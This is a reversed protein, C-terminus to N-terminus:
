SSPSTCRPSAVPLLVSRKKRTSQSLCTLQKSGEVVREKKRDFFLSLDLVINVACYSCEHGGEREGQRCRCCMVMRKSVKASQTHKHTGTHGVGQNRRLHLLCVSDSLRKSSIYIVGEVALQFALHRGLPCSGSCLSDIYLAAIFESTNITYLTHACGAGVQYGRGRGCRSSPGDGSQWV